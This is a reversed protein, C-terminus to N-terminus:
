IFIAFNLPPFHCNKNQAKNRCSHKQIAHQSGCILLRFKEQILNEWGCGLVPVRSAFVGQLSKPNVLPVASVKIPLLRDGNDSARKVREATFGYNGDALTKNSSQKCPDQGDKGVTCFYLSYLPLIINYFM